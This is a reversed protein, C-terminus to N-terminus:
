CFVNKDGGCPAIDRHDVDVLYAGEGEYLCMCDGHHNEDIVKLPKGKIDELTGFLNKTYQPNDVLTIYNGRMKRMIREVEQEQTSEGNLIRINALLIDLLGERNNSNM